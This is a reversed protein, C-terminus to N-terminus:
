AQDPFGFGILAAVMALAWALYIAILLDRQSYRPSLRWVVPWPLALALLLLALGFTDWLYIAMSFGVILAVFMPPICALILMDHRMRATGAIVFGFLAVSVTYVTAELM